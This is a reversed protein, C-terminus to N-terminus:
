YLPKEVCYTCTYGPGGSRAGVNLGSFFPQDINFVTTYYQTAGSAAGGAATPWVPIQFLPIQGSALFPGGSLLTLGVNAGDYFTVTGGSLQSNFVVVSNLRGRNQGSVTIALDGASGVGSYSCFTYLGGRVSVHPSIPM